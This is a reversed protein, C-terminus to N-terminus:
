YPLPASYGTRCPRCSTCFWSFGSFGLTAASEIDDGNFATTDLETSQQAMPLSTAPMSGVLVKDDQAEWDSENGFAKISAEASVKKEPNFDIRNDIGSDTAKTPSDEGGLLNSKSVTRSPANSPANSPPNSPPRNRCPASILDLSSEAALENVVLAKPPLSQGSNESELGAEERGPFLTRQALEKKALDAIFDEAADMTPVTEEPWPAPFVRQVLRLIALLTNGLIGKPSLVVAHGRGVLVFESGNEQVFGLFRKIHRVAPVASNRADSRIFLVMEPRQALNQLIAAFRALVQELVEDVIPVNHMKVELRAVPGEESYNVTAFPTELPWPPDPVLASQRPPYGALRFPVGWLQWDGLPPDEPRQRAALEKSPQGIVEGKAATQDQVVWGETESGRYFLVFKELGKNKQFTSLRSFHWVGDAAPSFTFVIKDHNCVFYLSM